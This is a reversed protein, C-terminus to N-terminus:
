LWETLTTRKPGVNFIFTLKVHLHFQEHMKLGRECSACLCFRSLIRGFRKSKSRLSNGFYDRIVFYQVFSVHDLAVTTRHFRM